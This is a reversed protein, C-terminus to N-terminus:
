GSANRAHSFTTYFREYKKLKLYGDYNPINFWFYRLVKKWWPEKYCEDIVLWEYASGSMKLVEGKKFFPYHMRIYLYKPEKFPIKM